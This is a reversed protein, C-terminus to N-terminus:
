LIGLSKIKELIVSKEILKNLCSYTVCYGHITNKVNIAMKNELYFDFAKSIVEDTSKLELPDLFEQLKDFTSTKNLEKEMKARNINSM